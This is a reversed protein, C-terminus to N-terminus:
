GSNNFFIVSLFIIIYVNCFLFPGPAEISSVTFSLVIDYGM